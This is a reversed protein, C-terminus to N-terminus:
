RSTKLYRLGNKNKQLDTLTMVSDNMGTVLYKMLLSPYGGFDFVLTDRSIYYQVMQNSNRYDYNLYVWNDAKKLKFSLYFDESTSGEPLSDTDIMWLKENDGTFLMSDLTAPAPKYRAAAIEADIKALREESSEGCSYLLSVSLLVLVVSKIPNNM